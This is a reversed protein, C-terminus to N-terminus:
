INRVVYEVIKHVKQVSTFWARARQSNVFSTMIIRQVIIEALM